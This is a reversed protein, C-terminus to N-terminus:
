WRYSFGFGYRVIGPEGSPGQVTWYNADLWFDPAVQLSFGGFLSPKTGQDSASYSYVGAGVTWSSEYRGLTRDKGYIGFLSYDKKGANRPDTGGLVGAQLIFKDDNKLQWGHRLHLQWANDLGKFVIWGGFSFFKNTTGPAGVPHTQEFWFLSGETDLFSGQKFRVYPQVGAAINLMRRGEELQKGIRPLSGGLQATAPAAVVIALSVAALSAPLKRGADPVFASSRSKLKM